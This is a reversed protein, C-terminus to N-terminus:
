LFCQLSHWIITENSIVTSLLDAFNNNGDIVTVTLQQLCLRTNPIILLMHGDCQQCCWQAVWDHFSCEQFDANKRAIPTGRHDVM